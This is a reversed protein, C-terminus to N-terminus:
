LAGSEWLAKRLAEADVAEKAKEEDTMAPVEIGLEEATKAKSLAGTMPEKALKQAAEDWPAIGGHRRWLEEKAMRAAHDLLDKAADQLPDSFVDGVKKLGDEFEM